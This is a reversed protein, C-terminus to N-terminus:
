AKTPVVAIAMEERPTRGPGGTPAETRTIQM